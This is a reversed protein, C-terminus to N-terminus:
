IKRNEYMEYAGLFASGLLKLEDTTLEFSALIEGKPSRIEVRPGSMPTVLCLTGESSSICIM